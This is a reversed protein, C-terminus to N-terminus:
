MNRRFIRLRDNICLLKLLNVTQNWFLWWGIYITRWIQTRNCWLIYEDQNQNDTYPCVFLSSLDFSLLLTCLSAGQTHSVANKGGAGVRRVIKRWVPWRHLLIGADANGYRCMCGIVTLLMLGSALDCTTLGHPTQEWEQILSLELWQALSHISSLATMM